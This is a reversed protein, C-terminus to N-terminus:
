TGEVSPADPELQQYADGLVRKFYSRNHLMSPHGPSLQLAKENHENAQAKDGLRDYCLCLMLHPYWTTTALDQM